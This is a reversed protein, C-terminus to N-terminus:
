TSMRKYIWEDGLVVSIFDSMEKNRNEQNMRQRQCTRAYRVHIM